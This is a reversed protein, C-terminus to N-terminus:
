AVKASRNVDLRCGGTPSCKHDAEETYVCYYGVPCEGTAKYVVTAADVHASVVQAWKDETAAAQLVDKLPAMKSKLVAVELKRKRSQLSQINAEVHALEESPDLVVSAVPQM